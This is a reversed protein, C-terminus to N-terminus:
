AACCVVRMATRAGARAYVVIGEPHAARRAGGVGEDHVELAPPDLLAQLADLLRHLSVFIIIIIIM